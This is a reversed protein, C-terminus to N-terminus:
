HDILFDLVARSDPGRDVYDGLYIVVNRPAQRQWADEHILRHLRTLLHDCGHIDGIAYIRSGAPVEPAEARAGRGLLHTLMSFVIPCVLSNRWERARKHRSSCM